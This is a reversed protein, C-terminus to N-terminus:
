RGLHCIWSWAIGSCTGAPNREWSRPLVPKLYIYMSVSLSLNENKVCIHGIYPTLLFPLIGEIRVYLGLRRPLPVLSHVASLSPSM